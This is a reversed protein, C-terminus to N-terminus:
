LDHPFDYGWTAVLAVNEVPEVQSRIPVIPMMKQAHVVASKPQRDLQALAVLQKYKEREDPSVPEWLKRGIVEERRYQADLHSVWVMTGTRDALVTHNM